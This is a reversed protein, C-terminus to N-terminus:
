EQMREIALEAAQDAFASNITSVVDAMNNKRNAANQAREM